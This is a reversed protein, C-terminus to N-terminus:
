SESVSRVDDLVAPEIKDYFRRLSFIKQAVSDVSHHWEADEKEVLGKKECQEIFLKSIAKGFAISDEETFGTVENRSVVSTSVELNSLVNLKSIIKELQDEISEIRTNFSIDENLLDEKSLYLKILQTVYGALTMGTKIANHKLKKLLEPNINVNLQTRATM